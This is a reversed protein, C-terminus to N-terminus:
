HLKNILELFKDVWESNFNIGKKTAIYKGESELLFHQRLDIREVNRYMGKSLVLKTKDTIQLEGIIEM